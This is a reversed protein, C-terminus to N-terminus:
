SEMATNWYGSEALYDWKETASLKRISPSMQYYKIDEDTLGKRVTSLQTVNEKVIPDSKGALPNYIQAGGSKDVNSSRNWRDYNNYDNSSAYRSPVDFEQDLILTGTVPEFRMLHGDLLQFTTGYKFGLENCARKINEDVSSMVWTDLEDIYMAHLNDNRGKFVDLIRLGDTDRAFIGCAYYGILDSVTAKINEPIMSTKYKLYSILIAESDCTSLKFKFKETNTIIGNHILSTDEDIFPHTNSMGRTSTALRTHLTIAVMKNLDPEGYKTYVTDITQNKIAKKLMNSMKIDNPNSGTYKFGDKNNLWREAFLNGDVDVAAYGLGDDNGPTMIEAMKRTFRIANARREPKIGAMIFVKCM